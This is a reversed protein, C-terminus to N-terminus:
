KIMRSFTDTIEQASDSIMRICEGRYARTSVASGDPSFDSNYIYMMGSHSRNEFYGTGDPMFESPVLKVNDLFCLDGNIYVSMRSRYKKFLFREGMAKRGCSLISRFILSSDNELYIDTKGTFISGEFPIVPEPTYILKGGNEVTIKTKQSVGGKKGAKFIKTFSQETIKLCADKKVLIETDYIDGDLMGPSASMIMIETYGDRYFPRATKLPSTFFCDEIVTRGNRYGACIYLRSM